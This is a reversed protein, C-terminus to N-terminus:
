CCMECPCCVIDAFCECCFKCSEFCLFCDVAAMFCDKAAGGGRVRMARTEKPQEQTSAKAPASTPLMQMGVAPQESTAVRPIDINSAM